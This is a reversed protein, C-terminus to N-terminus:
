LSLENFERIWEDKAQEATMGGGYQPAAEVLSFDFKMNPAIYLKDTDPTLYGFAGPYGAGVGTYGGTM